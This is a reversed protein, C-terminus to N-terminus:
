YGRSLNTVPFGRLGDSLFDNQVSNSSEQTNGRSDVSLVNNGKGDGTKDTKAATKQSSQLMVRGVDELAVKTRGNATQIILLPKKDVYEIGAVRGSVETKIETSAGDRNIGFVRFTYKGSPVFSGDDGKGDWEIASTTNKQLTLDLERVLQGGSNFINAKTPHTGEKFTPTLSLKEGQIVEIKNGSARIEKGIMEVAQLKAGSGFGGQLKQIGKDINMLREMSSFQSLQAVFEHHDMPKLPDQYQLQALFLKMFADKGLENPRPQPAEVAQNLASNPFLANTLEEM